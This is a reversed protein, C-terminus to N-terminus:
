SEVLRSRRFRARAAGILVLDVVVLLVIGGLLLGRSGVDNAWTAFGRKLGEPLAQAGFVPVFFFVMMAISMTQQAQRVTQARLSVLVGMASALGAGLFSLVVAAVALSRPYLLLRHESHAINITVLGLLLAVLSLIWGYAVAAGLKGFLIATDSLRSALLTELTHREREGAFSDAVITSVLLVPVWGWAAVVAPSTVWAIGVQVPLLIGLVGLLVVLQLRGRYAGGLAMIEKWEKRLVIAIDGIM